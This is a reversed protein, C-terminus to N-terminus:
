RPLELWGALADIRALYRDSDKDWVDLVLSQAGAAAYAAVSERIGDPSLGESGDASFKPLHLRSAVEFGDPLRGGALQTLRGVLEALEEASNATAQWGNGVRLARKMAADAHGGVLIPLPDQVPLPLVNLERDEVKAPSSSWVTRMLDLAADTERGRRHFDLGLVEFEEELWGVGVGIEVRGGSLQDLTALMKAHLLPNRHPVILVSFGLRVRGTRGAAWALLVFPDYFPADRQFSAKGSPHYPYRSAVEVPIVVHDGVWVTSYGVADAREIVRSLVERTALPGFHPLHLGIRPTSGM